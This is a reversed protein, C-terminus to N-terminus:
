GAFFKKEPINKESEIRFLYFKKLKYQNLELLSYFKLEFKNKLNEDKFQFSILDNQRDLTQNM